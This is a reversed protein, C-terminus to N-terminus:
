RRAVDHCEAVSIQPTLDSRSYWFLPNALPYSATYGPGFTMDMHDHENTARGQRQYIQLSSVHKTEACKLVVQRLM